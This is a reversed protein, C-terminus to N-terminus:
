VRGRWPLPTTRLLVAGRGTSASVADATPHDDLEDVGVPLRHRWSPYDNVGPLNVRDPSGIMDDISVLAVASGAHGLAAHAAILVQENTRGPADDRGDSSGLSRMRDAMDGSRPDSGDLAGMVTPLDHTSLTALSAAPWESPPSSEFWAVKTGAVGREALLERIGPEVTGLDEGVVWTGARVSELAVLDLLEQGHWRVYAGQAPTGDPPVWFLRFLQMVHDIRLGAGRRLNTRLTALFPEYGAARLRVPDYPPLGWDQGDPAFGDPPAGISVNRALVPADIWADYGWPDVGVPLDFMLDVRAAISTLQEHALWQVWTWFEVQDVLEAAAARVADSQADHLEAPWAPWGTGYAEVLANFTAHGTLGPNDAAFAM